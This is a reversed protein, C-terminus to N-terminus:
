CPCRYMQALPTTTLPQVMRLGGPATADPQLIYTSRAPPQGSKSYDLPAILGDTDVNGIEHFAKALASRELSGDKCAANLIQYMVAGQGYGYDAAATATEHPYATTYETRFRSAGPTDASFPSFSQAIFFRRELGTKAPGDLLSPVFTPSSGVFTADFGRSEAVSVASAVQTPTTSMLIFKAGAANVAQVHATMDTETPQVKERVVTLGYAKAAAAAGLLANDGDEGEAYIHGVTDGARLGKKQMLWGLGNIMELDYTTGSMVVYPDALLKSSWSVPQTLVADRVISKLLASTMPTGLLQQFALVHPQMSSYLAIASQLEDGHNKIILVVSRGCVGGRENQDRWFLQAGQTVAKGLAASGGTLDTLIGLNITNSTVGPGVPVDAAAVQGDGAGGPDCAVVALGGCVAVVVCRWAHVRRKM